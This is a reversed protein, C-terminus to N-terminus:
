TRFNSSLIYTYTSYMLFTLFHILCKRILLESENVFSSTETSLSDRCLDRLRKVSVSDNDSDVPQNVNNFINVPKEVKKQLTYNTLHIMHDSLSDVSTNYHSGCRRAYVTPYVSAQLPMLNTVLVWVRMDFKSETPPRDLIGNPGHYLLKAYLSSTLQTTSPALLPTEIYKQVVRGNMKKELALIEDLKYSIRMGVGCSTDPSKVIWVNRHGDSFYQKQNPCRSWVRLTSIIQHDHPSLGRFLCRHIMPNHLKHFGFLIQMLELHDERSKPVIDYSACLVVHWEKDTLATTKDRFHRSIDVEPWEGFVKVRVNWTIALLSFKEADNMPTTTRTKDAATMTLTQHDLISRVRRDLYDQLVIKAACLRFDDIFADRHSSNGLDYCRPTIELSNAGLWQFEKSLDCFGQKTTLSATIGEFHNVITEATLCTFDLDKENLTAILRPGEKFSLRFFLL